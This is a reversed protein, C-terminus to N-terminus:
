AEGETRGLARRGWQYMTMCFSSDYQRQQQIREQVMASHERILDNLPPLDESQLEHLSPEREASAQGALDLNDTRTILERM